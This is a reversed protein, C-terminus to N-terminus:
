IPLRICKSPHHGRLAKVLQEKSVHTYRQTSSISAHGLFEQVIRLDVGNRLLLTAVTHRLMHPTVHRPIAAARALQGIANAAGQASLRQGSRNPFLARTGIQLHRRLNLYRRQTELSRKDTLFALRTRGGKGRVRYSCQDYSFDEVNLSVAEGIRLGTAFLLDVLALNRHALLRRKVGTTNAAELDLLQQHAQVLLRAVERRELYKPLQRRKGLDLRLRWFPSDELHGKRVWYLFFIRLSALKRSISAPAYGATRLHVAWREVSEARLGALKRRPGTFHSFQLLDCHYATKTKEARDRTSFYGSHFRRVATSLQM